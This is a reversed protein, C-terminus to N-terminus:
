VGSSSCADGMALMTSGENEGLRAQLAVVVEDEQRGDGSAM